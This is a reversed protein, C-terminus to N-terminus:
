KYYHMFIDELSPEVISIDELESQSLAHLLKRIDGDFLFHVNDGNKEIGSCGELGEPNFGGRM